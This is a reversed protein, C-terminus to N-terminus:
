DKDDSGDGVFGPGSSVGAFTQNLRSYDKDVSLDQKSDDRPHTLTKSSGQNDDSQDLKSFPTLQM